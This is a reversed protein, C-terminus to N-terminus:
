KEGGDLKFEVPICVWCYDVPKGDKIAPKWKVTKITNAASEDCGNPGLSEKISTSVVDGNRDIKAWVLVRGQIGAKRAIQPYAIHERIAKYGGIPEPAVDFEVFEPKEKPPPPPPQQKSKKLSGTETSTETIMSVRDKSCGWCLMTSLLIMILIAAKGKPEIM